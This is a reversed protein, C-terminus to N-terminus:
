SSCKRICHKSKRRSLHPRRVFDLLCIMILIVALYGVPQVCDRTQVGSTFDSMGASTNASINMVDTVYEIASIRVMMFATLLTAPWTQMNYSTARRLSLAVRM